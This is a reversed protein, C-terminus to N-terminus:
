STSALAGSAEGGDYRRSADDWGTDILSLSSTLADLASDNFSALGFDSSFSSVESESGYARMADSLARYHLRMGPMLLILDGLRASVAAAQTPDSNLLEPITRGRALEANVRDREVVGATTLLPRIGTFFLLFRFKETSLLGRRILDPWLHETLFSLLRNGYMKRAQQVVEPMTGNGSGNVLEVISTEHARRPTKLPEDVRLHPIHKQAFVGSRVEDDVRLVRWVVLSMLTVKLVNNANARRPDRLVMAESPTIAVM